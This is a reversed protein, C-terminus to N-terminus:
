NIFEKLNLFIPPKLIGIYFQFAICFQWGQYFIESPEGYRHSRSTINIDNIMKKSIGVQVNIIEM